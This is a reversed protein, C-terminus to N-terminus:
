SGPGPPSPVWHGLFAKMCAAATAAAYPQWAKSKHSDAYDCAGKIVVCPFSDWVGSAEMEFAVVGEQEAIADREEGSKMVKDGSAVLGFHVALQVSTADEGLLRRRPVLAGNCGCDECLQGEAVHHYRKDFLKDRAAGPYESGPEGEAQLAHMYRAMGDSLMRRERRTKLKALLGRIEVNPRGLVDLLTDKRVFRDPMQWGFDYQVVGDSIVVDGLIREEGDPGLPVVGCIGVVIALRINPFSRDCNAAVAAASAKGMGPMHALVVNHRGIVGTSYANPDNKAKDYPAADGDDNDDWHRDFLAAVADAELTLACIIAIEFGDRTAPRRPGTRDGM